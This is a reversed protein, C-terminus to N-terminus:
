ETWCEQTPAEQAVAGPSLPAVRHLVMGLAAAGIFLAVGILVIRM